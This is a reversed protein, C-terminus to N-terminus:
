TSGSPPSVLETVPGCYGSPLKRRKGTEGNILHVCAGEKSVIVEYEGDTVRIAACSEIGIGAVSRAMLLGTFRSQWWEEEYHPCVLGPILGLGEIVVMQETGTRVDVSDSVGSSFWGIAGASLGCMVMDRRSAEVLVVDMATENWTRLMTETDGGGVYVIDANAVMDQLEGTSYHEHTLTIAHVECGLRKGYLARFVEVYGDADGSATPLFVVVPHAKGTTRVLVEDISLTELPYGPRGIEGGGIAVVTGM